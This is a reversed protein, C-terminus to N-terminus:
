IASAACYAAEENNAPPLEDHERLLDIAIHLGNSPSKKGPLKALRELAPVVPPECRMSVRETRIRERRWLKFEARWEAATMLRQDDAGDCVETDDTENTM